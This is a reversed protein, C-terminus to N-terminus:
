QQLGREPATRAGIREKEKIATLVRDVTIAEMCQWHTCPKWAYCPSCSLDERIVTHNAGYPGTRVPNAPGFIAFVPVGLAAAIHMPGTDNTVFFEAKGIIPLLEKISTKGVLSIAKGGAHRVVEEAVPQDSKGGIIITPVDLRAALEGFRAAPWRNAEKGASPTMVVYKPPLGACIAPAPDFPALPYRIGDLRCGMAEAIKLYRDIAHIEMSGHIRHSYFFASGEDAEKFGLKYRANAAMTILGSRLLGSLDISVDFREQRLGTILAALEQMTQWLNGARKWKEKDFIWLRDILPHGELFTHLGRAVVWHISADPYNRKVTDLFPLSHVIDGLASPKIILIKEPPKPLPLPKM